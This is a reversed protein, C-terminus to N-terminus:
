AHNVGEGLTFCFEAGREVEAQAWIRGGHRHVVRQVIALGVGTGEFDEVRHLRQFVGFLKDAYRMDFGTGNDRIYYVDEGNELRSGIEILARERKRTYKLANSLLNIWVQKLLAPDGECDPLSTVKFDIERGAFQERLEQAAENVLATTSVNQRTLAARSLRSFTLLDDILAGMRQAGNRITQLYRQGDEPLQAGYDELVAQSFGDVARLPARLDHSVSYSFAELEKNATELEATRVTVREELTRNLTEIQALMHNFADTLTGIEDNGRKIARVSYDRRDSFAKATEALALIPRSIQKQLLDSIVYAILFALVIGLLAIALSNRMWQRMITSTDFRLYLTGLLRDGEAVPQFGALGLRDYRYKNKKTEPAPFSSDSETAPYKAFIAGGKDYLAAATVGPETKLATLIEIADSQNKFALAATSNAAIVQGLTDLHRMTSERFTMFEYVLSATRVLLLTAVTTGLIIGILKHRIPMNRLPM